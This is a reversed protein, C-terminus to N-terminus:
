RPSVECAHFCCNSDFLLTVANLSCDGDVPYSVSSLAFVNLDQGQAPRANEEVKELSYVNHAKLFIVEAILVLSDTLALNNLGAYNSLELEQPSQSSKCLLVLSESRDHLNGSM